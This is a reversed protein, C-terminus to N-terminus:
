RSIDEKSIYNFEEVLVDKVMPGNLRVNVKDILNKTLTAIDYKELHRFDLKDDAYLTKFAEDLIFAEIPVTAQNKNDTNSTYAFQAIVYGQVAGNAIMPVNIPRTKEYDTKDVAAQAAAEAHHMKVAIMMYASVLTVACIWLCSIVLRAMM